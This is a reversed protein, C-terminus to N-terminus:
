SGGPGGELREDTADDGRGEFYRDIVAAFAPETPRARMFLTMSSRLKQADVAGLLDEASAAGSECVARACAILRPGLLPHSLYERAEAVSGIAYRQSMASRGLGILQPFVFWMWHGTKRGARLEAIAQAYADGAEQAAVFRELESM